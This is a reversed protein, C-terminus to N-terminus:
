WAQDPPVARWFGSVWIFEKSEDDWAWYGPIWAVNDGEPKQDPPAEEIAEPPAKPAVPGPQPDFVTPQGFAEHIPGRTLEQAVDGPPMPRPPQAQALAVALSITVAFTTLRWPLRPTM